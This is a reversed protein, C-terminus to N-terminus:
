KMILDFEENFIIKISDFLNNLGSITLEYKDPYIIIQECKISDSILKDSLIKNNYLNSM